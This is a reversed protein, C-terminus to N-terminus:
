SIETLIDQTVVEKANAANIKGVLGREAYYNIVPLTTKHYATLRTKLAEANDDKRQILPEGTM